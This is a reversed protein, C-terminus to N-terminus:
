GTELSVLATAVWNPAPDGVFQTSVDVLRLDHIKPTLPGLVYQLLQGIDKSDSIARICCDRYALYDRKAFYILLEEINRRAFSLGEESIDVMKTSGYGSGHHCLDATAVVISESAIKAVEDIGPLTEPHGSVLNPYRTVLKPLPLSYRVAVQHVFFVFHDLSYERSLMEEQPLGPGFIWRLPHDLVDGGSIEKERAEFLRENMAHIPGVVLIQNKGTKQCARMAAYAVAAIQDGCLDITAHPFLASGGEALIQTLDALEAWQRGQELMIALKESSMTERRKAYEILVDAKTPIKLVRSFPFQTLAGM